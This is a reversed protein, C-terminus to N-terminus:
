NVKGGKGQLFAQMREQAHESSGALAAMLSEMLYGEAPGAAAIRPLAQLVAFNTVPSNAAITQALKLAHALGEGPGTLYHSLGLAHGEQADLVRGTLMMDMVRHTGILRPVRVSGGGGVFLGHQGEPLAYFTPADAVRVHSAAALELGGGIVAGKLASFVPVLAQQVADLARHWMRSHAIGEVTSREALQGLDLGACFHPGDATLVVARVDAPLRTFWAEVAQITTDEVANRKAARHLELVAVDGDRRSRLTPPLSGPPPAARVVDDDVMVVM